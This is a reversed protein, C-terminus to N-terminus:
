PLDQKFFDPGRSIHHIRVVAVTNITEEMSYVVSYPKIEIHRYETSSLSNFRKELPRGSPMRAVKEMDDLFRNYFDAAAKMSREEILNELIEDLKKQAEPKYIISYTVAM